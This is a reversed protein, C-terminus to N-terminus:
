IEIQIKRKKMLWRNILWLIVFSFFLVGSMIYIDDPNKDSLDNWRQPSFRNFQRVWDESMESLFMWMLSWASLIATGVKGGSLGNLLFELMGYCIGSLGFLLASAFIAQWPMYQSIVSYSVRVVNDYGMDALKGAAATGWVKGWDGFEICPLVTLISFLLQEAVYIVSVLVISLMQGCAYCGIGSRQLIQKQGSDKLPLDSFLFILLLFAINCYVNDSFYFPLGAPVLKLDFDMALQRLSMVFLDMFMWSMASLVFFKVSLVIIKTEYLAVRWIRIINDIIKM